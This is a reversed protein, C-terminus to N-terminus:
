VCPRLVLFPYLNILLLLFFIGSLLLGSLALFEDRDYAQLPFEEVPDLKQYYRWSRHSWWGNWVVGGLALLTLAVLIVVLAEQGFIRFDLFGTMCAAESLMYGILLHLTWIIPSAFMGFWLTKANRVESIASRERM